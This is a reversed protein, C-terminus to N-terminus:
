RRMMEWISQECPKMRRNMSRMKVVAAVAAAGMKLLWLFQQKLATALM